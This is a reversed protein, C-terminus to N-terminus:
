CPVKLWRKYLVSREICFSLPVFGVKEHSSLQVKQFAIRVVIAANATNVFLAFLRSGHLVLICKWFRVKIM